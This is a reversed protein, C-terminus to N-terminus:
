FTKVGFSLSKSNFFYVEHFTEQLKDVSESNNLNCAAKKNKHSMGGMGKENRRHRFNEPLSVYTAKYHFTTLVFLKVPLLKKLSIFRITFIM